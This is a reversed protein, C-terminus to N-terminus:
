LTLRDNRSSDSGVSGTGKPLIKRGEDGQPVSADPYSCSGSDHLRSFTSYILNVIRKGGPAYSILFSAVRGSPLLSVLEPVAASGSIVRGGPYVLHFSRHRRSRPVSDLLGQEDAETLSFYDLRKHGDLFSVIRKFRSCSGCDKDYVLLHKKLVM